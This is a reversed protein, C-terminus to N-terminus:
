RDGQRGTVEHLVRGDSRAMKVGALAALTPAIDVLSAPSVLRAPALGAGMFVMPVRLDYDYPTGHNTGGEALVWHPRPVFMLDGSRDAAYSRRMFVLQEDDSARTSALDDGWYVRAVGPVGAVAREVLGRAGPTARIKDLVGPQFYISSGSIANV